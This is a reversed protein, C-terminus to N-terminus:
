AAPGAQPANLTALKEKALQANKILADPSFNQRGYRPLLAIAFNFHLFEEWGDPFGVSVLTTALAAFSPIATYYTLEVSGPNANPMPHVGVTILPYATDAGVVGPIATTEGLSARSASDLEELTVVPGGSSFSGYLARWATAKVPRLATSFVGGVGFTYRSVNSQLSYSTHKQLFTMLQEVSVSGVFQNLRVLGDNLVTTSPTDGPRYVGLDCFSEVIIDQATTPM